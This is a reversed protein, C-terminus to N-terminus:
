EHHHSMDINMDDDMAMSKVICNQQVDGAHAFHFTVPIKNGVALPQKLKNLMLHMGADELDVTHGAKIALGDTVPRMRMVGGEETMSHLQVKSIDSKVSTMIEDETGQNVFIATGIATKTAPPPATIVCKQIAILASQAAHVPLSLVTTSVTLVLLLILKYRM